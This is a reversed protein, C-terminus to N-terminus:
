LLPNPDNSSIDPPTDVHSTVSMVLRNLRAYEPHAFTFDDPQELERAIVNAKTVYGGTLSRLGHLMRFPLSDGSLSSMQLRHSM